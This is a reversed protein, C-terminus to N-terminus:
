SCGPTFAGPVGLIVVRKGKLLEDTTVKVAHTAATAARCCTNLM